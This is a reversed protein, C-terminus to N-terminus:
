RGPPMGPRSGNEAELIPGLSCASDFLLRIIATSFALIIIIYEVGLLGGIGGEKGGGLRGEAGKGRGESSSALYLAM